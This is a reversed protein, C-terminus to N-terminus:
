AKSFVKENYGLMCAAYFLSSASEKGDTAALPSREKAPKKDARFAFPIARRKARSAPCTAQVTPAETASELNSASRSIKINENFNTLKRGDIKLRRAPSPL